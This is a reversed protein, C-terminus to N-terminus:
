ILVKSVIISVMLCFVLFLLTVEVIISGRM